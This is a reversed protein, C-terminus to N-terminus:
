THSINIVSSYLHKETNYAQSITNSKIINVRLQRPNGYIAVKALNKDFNESSTM